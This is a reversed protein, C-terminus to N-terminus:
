QLVYGKLQLAKQISLVQVRQESSWGKMDEVRSKLINNLIDRNKMVENVLEEDPLEVNAYTPDSLVSENPPGQMVAASTVIDGMVPGGEMGRGVHSGSSAYVGQRKPNTRKEPLVHGSSNANDRERDSFSFSNEMPPAARFPAYKDGSLGIGTGSGIRGDAEVYNAAYPEGAGNLDDANSGYPPHNEMGAVRDTHGMSSDGNAYDSFYSTKFHSSGGNNNLQSVGGHIGGNTDNYRGHEIQEINNKYAQSTGSGAASGYLEKMMGRRRRQKLNGSTHSNGEQYLPNNGSYQDARGGYEETEEGNHIGGKANRLKTLEKKSSAYLGPMTTGGRKKKGGGASGVVSPPSNLNLLHSQPGGYTSGGLPNDESLDYIVNEGLPRGRRNSKVLSINEPNNRQNHNHEEEQDAVGALGIKVKGSREMQVMREAKNVLAEDSIVMNLDNKGMTYENIVDMLFLCHLLAYAVNRHKQLYLKIMGSNEMAHKQFFRLLCMIQSTTLTHVIKSIFVKKMNSENSTSTETQNYPYPEEKVNRQMNITHTIQQGKGKRNYHSNSDMSADFKDSRKGGHENARGRSLLNGGGFGSIAGSALKERFEENAWYLRLKRGKLEYGNIYKLALMCTELDKYECFAFGKSINKDVDYKIRVSVVQGVKSLIEHLERETVDFPINGIWLSYNSKSAM